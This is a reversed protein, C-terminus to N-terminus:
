SSTTRGSKLLDMKMSKAPADSSDDHPQYLCSGPNGIVCSVPIHMHSCSKRQGMMVPSNKAPLDSLNQPKSDAQANISWKVAEFWPLSMLFQFVPM